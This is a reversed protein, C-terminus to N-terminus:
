LKFEAWVGGESIRGRQNALQDVILLEWHIDDAEARTEPTPDLMSHDLVELRLRNEGVEISVHIPAGHPNGAHKYSDTVLESIALAVHERLQEPVEEPLDNVISRAQAPALPGNPVTRDIRL